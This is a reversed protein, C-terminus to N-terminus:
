PTATIARQLAAPLPAAATGPLGAPRPNHYGHCVTCADTVGGKPSHCSACTKKSPLLVDSTAVSATAAHCSTCDLQTHRAHDFHARPLWVDAPRVPAISPASGAPSATVVHCLNCSDRGVPASPDGFFVERELQEGSPHRSRLASLKGTVYDRLPKGALGLRRVADDSYAAPLARLFERANEPSGHPVVVSPTSADIPLGHCSRCHLTFKVPLMLAGTPDPVHCARCDLARGDLLPINPGSLHLAHNFALATPDRAGPLNARFEPHDEAFSTILATLGAPPRAVPFGARNASLKKEFLAPDLKRALLASDGMDKTSGHCASCHASNVELLNQGRGQHELHCVSCSTDRAVSAQHFSHPTHCGQCAADMARFDRAEHAFLTEPALTGTTALRVTSAAWGAPSRHAAPHCQACGSPDTVGAAAHAAAFHPGSHVTSLAGPTIVQDRAPGFLVLLLVGLAAAIAASVLLGRRSRLSRVPVCPQTSRCCSGDPRPGESCPGGWDSPRTCKWLGKTEGAATVLLPKCDPGARCVGSPSPGLRCPCGDCARGCIWDKQPREYRTDDFEPSPQRGETSM